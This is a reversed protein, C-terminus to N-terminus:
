GLDALVLLGPIESLHRDATLVAAEVELAHAAVLLDPLTLVVGRRDLAWAEASARQWVRNHTPIYVMVGFRQYFKNKTAAERRGRLVELMVVGCTAFEYQGSWRALEVFPDEGQASRAIFFNSDVLVLNAM